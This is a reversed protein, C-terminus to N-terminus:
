GISKLLIQLTVVVVVELMSNPTSSKSTWSGM